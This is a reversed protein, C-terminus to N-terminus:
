SGSRPAPRRSRAVLLEGRARTATSHGPVLLLVRDFCRIAEEFRRLLAQCEGLGLWAEVHSPDLAVAREYALVATKNRRLLQLARGEGFHAAADAAPAPPPTTRRAVEGLWAEVRPVDPHDPRSTSLFRRLAEAAEEFRALKTLARGQGYWARADRPELEAARAYARLAAEHAGEMARAEGALRHADARADDRRLAEDVAALAQDTRGSALLCFARVLWGDVAWAESAVLADSARLAEAFRGLHALAEARPAAATWAGHALALDLARLAEHTRGLSLLARGRGEHGAACAPDLEVARDFDVLAEGAAGGALLAIGRRLFGDGVPAAELARTLCRVEEPRHPHYSTRRPSTPTLSM